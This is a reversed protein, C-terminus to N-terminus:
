FPPVWDRMGATMRRRAATSSPDLGMLRLRELEDREPEYNKAKRLKKGLREHEAVLKKVALEADHQQHELVDGPNEEAWQLFAETRTTRPGGKIQKRVRDFVPVLEPPLNSRVADDDEQLRERGTTRKQRRHADSALRRLQAQLRREERLQATNKAVVSGGRARIQQKRASCASRAGQKMASVEANIRAREAERFARVEARVRQRNRRCIRVAAKMAARRREKARQIKKGLKALEARDNERLMQARMKAMAKAQAKAAGGSLGTKLQM